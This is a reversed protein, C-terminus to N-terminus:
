MPRTIQENDVPLWKDKKWDYIEYPKFSLKYAMRSSGPIWYGLYYYNLGLSLALEAERIVSLYGLRYNSYATDYIFYVSSLAASSRDLFGAAILRSNLYYESQLAPCSSEYFSSIFENIDALRQFRDMSHVAYLRYIEPKFELRSIKMEVSAGKAATKRLAKNMGSKLFSRVDIRVPICDSCDPCSPRFFIRGFKRWGASLFINLEEETLEEAM